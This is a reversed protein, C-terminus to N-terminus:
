MSQFKERFATPSYGTYKKFLISFYFADDYKLTFAIEKVTMVSNMLLNRAKQMKLDIMYHAPSVNTYEKFLKRFWSYGINLRDAVEKPTIDTLYNEKMITRARDILTVYYDDTFQGNRDHYISLALINNALAALLQQYGAKESEAVELAKNYYDIIEDRFGVKYIVRNPNFFGNRYRDDINPGRLGIWYEQWGTEKDPYYSHWTYPPIILMEGERVTIRESPSVYYVGKGKAIYILQYNDLIRGKDPDFYYNDPHGVLSPYVDYGPGVTTKGVNDVTIGWLADKESSVLYIFNETNKM